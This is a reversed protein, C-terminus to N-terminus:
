YAYLVEFKMKGYKDGCSATFVCAVFMLMAIILSSIKKKM